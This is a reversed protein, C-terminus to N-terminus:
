LVKRHLVNETQICVLAVCINPVSSEVIACIYM